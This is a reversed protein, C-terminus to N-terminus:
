LLRNSKIDYVCVNGTDRYKLVIYLFSQHYVEYMTTFRIYIFLSNAVARYEDLPLDISNDVLKDFTYQTSSVLQFPLHVLYFDCFSIRTNLHIHVQVQRNWLSVVKRRTTAM